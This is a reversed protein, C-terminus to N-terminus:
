SKMRDKRIQEEDESPKILRWDKPEFVPKEGCMAAKWFWSAHTAVENEHGFLARNTSDTSPQGLERYANQVLSLWGDSLVAPEPGPLKNTVDEWFDPWSVCVLEVQM